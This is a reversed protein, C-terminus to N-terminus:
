EAIRKLDYNAGIRTLISRAQELATRREEGQAHRGLEFLAMGEAYPLRHLRSLELSKQWAKRAANPNGTLWQYLGESRYVSPYHIPFSRSFRHAAPILKKSKQILSPDLPKGANAQEELMALMTDFISEFGIQVSFTTLSANLIIQLGFEIAERAKAHEGVQWYARALLGTVTTESAQDINHALYTKAELLIDVAEQSRGIIVYSRALAQLAWVKQQMENTRQLRVYFDNGLEINREYQADYFYSLCHLSRANGWRRRDGLRDYSEEVQKISAQVEKSTGENGLLYLVTVLNVWDRVKLDDYAKSMELAQAQYRVTIRKLGVVSMIVSMEILAQARGAFPAAKESINLANLGTAILNVRESAFYFLEFLMEYAKYADMLRTNETPAPTRAGTPSVIFIRPFLIHLFQVLFQQLTLLIVGFPTAPMPRGLLELSLYLHQKTSPLDGMGLYAQGLLREWRAREMRAELSHPQEKSVLQLAESLFRVAEQNAFQLLAREGAKVLYEIAKARDEAQTYHHALLPYYLSLDETYTQEYWEAVTRHLQKRQTFLMLNYAVEQTIIHKFIYTIDPSPTDLPTLDLQELRSLHEELLPRDTNIPHIDRLVRLAFVRGIVSAVKLTLQQQPTLRDIRSTIVGEITNPIFSNIEEASSTMTCEGNEINILHADRLAYALEESFFPHGEAKQTIINSMALPLIKVGLRMCVLDLADEAPLPQLKIFKTTPAQALRQYDIPPFDGLPRTVIVFLIDPLEEAVARALAWSASDLWHADELILLTPTGQAYHKLLAVLLKQTDHARAQGRMHRTLDNDPLDIPLVVDLLPALEIMEPLRQTFSALIGAIQESNLTAMGQRGAEMGDFADELGFLQRFIPRWPHYPASKEIADGAGVLIHVDTRDASQILDEVLRSKGIGAEGELIVLQGQGDKLASLYQTFTEKEPIRGILHGSSRSSGRLREIPSYVAVPHDIGKFSVPPLSEFIIRKSSADRTAADCFINLNTTDMTAAVKLRAALNVVQGIMTYERRKSSGISGCFVRGTAIGVRCVFGLNEMKTVIDLAALVARLPDDSHSFPPLGMAALLTVGKEDVSIKNATGEYGYLIQQLTYLVTQAEALKQLQTARDPVERETQGFGPLEIFLVTVRRLEAMWAAQGASLRSSIARPIYANLVSAHEPSVIPMTNSPGSTKGAATLDLLVNGNEELIANKGLTQRLEESIVVQGPKAHIQAFSAQAVPDGTIVFEWHQMLGGIFAIVAEGTGLGIRIRLFVNEAPSYEHLYQQLALACAAAQLNSDQNQNERWVALLADGAFKVVDGGHKHITDVMKAFYDNLIQTITEMGEPGQNALRETLATFGSIDAFLVTAKFREMSPRTLIDPQNVLKQKVINPIFSSLDLLYDSDTM